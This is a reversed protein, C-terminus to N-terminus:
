AAQETELAWAALGAAYSKESWQEIAKIGELAQGAQSACYRDAEAKPMLLSESVLASHAAYFETVAEAYKDANGAHKVALASIAKIEKRLVRAAAEIVVSRAQEADDDDAAPKPKPRFAEGEPRPKGTINQPIRLKDAEGPIRRRNETRRVENVTEIGANVKEVNATTRTGLDARELADRVFEVFFRKRNLVLQDNCAFEWMSLWEGMTFKSFNLAFQDANGYSPDSNELMMRPVGTWRAIDDVTYKRSLLMQADEPTMKSEIYEAGQELVRPMHWQGQGTVFSDAMRKSAEKDLLGPVKIVGGHLVGQSFVRGAYSETAQGNGLSERAFQLIGKGTVGDDSPGRLHFIEDQTFTLTRGTTQRVHYLIRGSSRVLEPTVVTPDEIPQLQDVFGRGGAIIRSYHNGHDIVHGTAQRKWVFADQWSNPKDHLIDYLPHERAPEAGDENPLREFVKLPLIGVSNMLIARARYWASLKRASQADVRQGSPTIVGSVPSYWFDDIPNPTSAHLTSAFFRDLLGM